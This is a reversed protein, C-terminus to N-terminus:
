SPRLCADIRIVCVIKPSRAVPAATVYIIDRPQMVFQDALVYAAANRAHLQYVNIHAEGGSVDRRMVFIGSARATLENIGGAEALAGALSLGNRDMIVPR